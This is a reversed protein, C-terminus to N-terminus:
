NLCKNFLVYWFLCDILNSGLILQLRGKFLQTWFTIPEVGDYVRYVFHESKGLLLIIRM